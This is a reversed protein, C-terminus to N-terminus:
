SHEYGRYLLMLVQSYLSLCHSVTTHTSGAKMGSVDSLIVPM